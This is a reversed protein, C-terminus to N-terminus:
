VIDNCFRRFECSPCRRPTRTATPFDEKELLHHIEQTVQSVKKRLAPTISVEEAKRLPISYLFGRQVPIQLKEELLLAYAALQLKFHPGAKQESHKYDVIIAEQSPTIIVMDILGKIGLTGSAAFFHFLREGQELQYKQLSRRLEKEEEQRHGQIGVEMSYTLPRVDPLCYRYYLLRPCCVYQKLDTVELLWTEQM